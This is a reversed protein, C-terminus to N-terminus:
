RRPNHSLIEHFLLLAQLLVPMWYILLLVCNKLNIYVEGLSLIKIKELVGYFNDRVGSILLSTCFLHYRGGGWLGM